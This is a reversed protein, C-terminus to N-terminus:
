ARLYTGSSPRIYSDLGGPRRFRYALPSRKLVNDDWWPMNPESPIVSPLSQLYALVDSATIDIEGSSGSITLSGNPVILTSIVGTPSGDVERIAIGSVTSGTGSSSSVPILDEAFVSTLNPIVARFQSVPDCTDLDASDWVKFSYQKSGKIIFDGQVLVLDVIGLSDTLGVSRVNTLLVSDIAVNRDLKAEVRANAIPTTGDNEYVVFRVTCLGPIDPDPLPM